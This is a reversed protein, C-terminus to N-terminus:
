KLSGLSTKNSVPNCYNIVMIITMLCVSTNENNFMLSLNTKKAILEISLNTVKHGFM